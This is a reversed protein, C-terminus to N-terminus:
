KLLIRKILTLLPLLESLKGGKLPCKAERVKKGAYRKEEPRKAGPGYKATLRKSKSGGHKLGTRVAHAKISPWNASPTASGPTFGKAIRGKSKEGWDSKSIVYLRDANKTSFITGYTAASNLAAEITDFIKVRSKRAKVSSGKSDKEPSRKENIEELFDILM